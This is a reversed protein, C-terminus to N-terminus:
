ASKNHFIPLGIVCIMSYRLLLIGGGLRDYDYEIVLQAATGVFIDLM